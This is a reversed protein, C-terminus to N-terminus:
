STLTVNDYGMVLLKCFVTLVIIDIAFRCEELRWDRMRESLSYDIPLGLDAYIAKVDPLFVDRMSVKEGSKSIKWNKDPREDDYRWHRGGPLRDPPNNKISVLRLGINHREAEANQAHSMDTFHRILRDRTQPLGALLSEFLEIVITEQVLTRGLRDFSKEENM